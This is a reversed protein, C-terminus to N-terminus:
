QIALSTAAALVSEREPTSWSNWDSLNAFQQTGDKYDKFEDSSIDQLPALKPTAGAVYKDVRSNAVVEQIVGELQVRITNSSGKRHHDATKVVAHDVDYLELVDLLDTRMFRLLDPGDLADPVVLTQPDHYSGADQSDTSEVVTFFVESPSVRFGIGTTM